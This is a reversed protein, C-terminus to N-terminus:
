GKLNKTYEEPYHDRVGILRMVAERMIARDRILFGYFLDKVASKIDIKGITLVTSIHRFGFLAPPVHTVIDRGNRVVTFRTFRAKVEKPVFGWFVRPCGFGVGRVAADPRNYICYEYCLLAIAAGHSYGVIDIKTVDPNNIWPKVHPEISKWVKLFGRHCFWLNEMHKYPKIPFDFNNKWDEKGDSWEFFIKVTDGEQRVYYDGGNECHIYPAALCEGFAEYLRM